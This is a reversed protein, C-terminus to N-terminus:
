TRMREARKCSIEKVENPADSRFVNRYSDVIWVEIMNEEAFAGTPFAVLLMVFTLVFSLSKKWMM